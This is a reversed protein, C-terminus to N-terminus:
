DSKAFSWPSHKKWRARLLMRAASTSTSFWVSNKVSSPATLSSCARIWDGNAKAFFPVSLAGEWQTRWLEKGSHRDFATAVEFKKDKTETTFVRDGVVIPGSYSPGLEVRWVQRLHNTDLKDPWAPGAFQGDRQPGRWQPWDSAIACSVHIALLLGVTLRHQNM